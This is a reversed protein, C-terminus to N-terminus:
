WSPHEPDTVTGSAPDYAYRDPFSLGSLGLSAIDPAKEGEHTQAYLKLQSRIVGLDTKIKTGDITERAQSGGETAVAATPDSSAPSLSFCAALVFFLM